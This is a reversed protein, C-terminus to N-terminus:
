MPPRHCDGDVPCRSGTTEGCVSSGIPSLGSAAASSTSRATAAALVANSSPGHGRSDGDSRISFISFSAATYVPWVSSIASRVVASIPAGRPKLRPPTRPAADIICRVM